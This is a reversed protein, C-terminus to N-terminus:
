SCIYIETAVGNEVHIQLALESDALESLEKKFKNKDMEEPGDEIAEKLEDWTSVKITDDDANSADAPIFAMAPLIMALVCLIVALRVGKGTGSGRLTRDSM